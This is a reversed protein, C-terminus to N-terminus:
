PISEGDEEIRAEAQSLQKAVSSGSTGGVVKRADVIASPEMVDFVDEEFAESAERLQSISLDPLRCGSKECLLVLRGVTEHAKRFPVGKGVLYDAVDTAEMFGERTAALMADANVAMTGVMGAACVYCDRLTDVADFAAEKDEQLDKNYALPLSKLTVMLSVMDGIVRGTKGRILEAFDPNKKQPMISSGTSYADSLTVFGFESTSWLIVEECLRSLHLSSVSCAYIADLLYDRDSVADLSNTTMRSFGLEETTMSRDLDYSTGALAASGLPNVDAAERAARLREFDREFMSAYALLHHAFLVPQAHQMHTYGPMIVGANQSAKSVLERRLDVNAEMLTALSEKMYLHTDTAVQDNRSRGTHLRKGADGIRRTLEAEIAMHIDEDDIGFSLDGSEIDRKIGLLGEEISSAEEASLVGAKVLMRAHAISGRIDQDYMRQDVPLSAGFRQTFDDVGDEFRGGWLAM